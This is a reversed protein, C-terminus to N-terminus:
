RLAQQILGWILVSAVFLRRRGPPLGAFGARGEPTEHEQGALHPWWREGRRWRWAARFMARRRYFYVTSILSMSVALGAGLVADHLTNAIHIAFICSTAVAIAPSAIVVYWAWPRVAAASVGFVVTWALTVVSLLTGWVGYHEAYTWYMAPNLAGALSAWSAMWGFRYPLPETAGLSISSTPLCM